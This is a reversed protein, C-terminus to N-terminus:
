KTEPFRMFGRKGAWVMWILAEAVCIVILSIIVVVIKQFLSYGSAYFAVYVLAGILLVAPILTSIVSMWVIDLNMSVTRKAM